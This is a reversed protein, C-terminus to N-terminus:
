RAATMHEAIPGLAWAPMFSLAGVIVIVGILLAVFLPTHTPLTGLGAPVQKKNALSGAIALVPIIVWFRGLFMTIGLATNYFVTNGSLGAFASGNNNAASSFAYLVESFGHPGPNLIGAEGAKTAVSMATGIKVLANVILIVLAAMKMEFMEIKKGLYEPTRGVM